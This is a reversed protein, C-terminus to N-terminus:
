LNLNLTVTYLNSVDEIDLQYQDSNYTLSLRKKINSLGIGRSDILSQTQKKKNQIFFRFHGDNMSIHIKLPHEPDQLDGYKFANEVFTIL